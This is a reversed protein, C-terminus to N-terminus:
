ETNVLLDNANQFTVVDGQKNALNKAIELYKDAKVKNNQKAYLAGLHYNFVAVNPSLSVVRELILEAEDFKGLQVNVWAYTDLYYPETASKFRETLRLAKELNEDSRFHDTLLSALNNIVPEVNEDQELIKEYLDKAEAFKKNQEYLSALQMELSINNPLERLGEHFTAMARDVKNQSLYVSAMASYGELWKSDVELGKKIVAIAKDALNDRLYINSQIVYSTFQRPNNVTFDKLFSLLEKEQNLKMSCFALGNLSRSVEQKANLLKKYEAIADAYREQTQLIRASIFTAVHAHQNTKNLTDVISQTGSLDNKLLRVQALTQLIEPNKPTMKLANLLVTESRNLDNSNMLREAVSLAAITNGPNIKLARRFNDEALENADTNSYAQALLVLAQEEEPNNRLVSRLRTIASDVENNSIEIAAKMILAPENEPDEKLVSQLKLDAAKEDENQLDFSALMTNARNRDSSNETSAVIENLEVVADDIKNMSALLKVKNFRLDTNKPNKNIYSNLLAVAETPEKPEMLTILLLNAESDDPHDNVFSELVKKAKFYDGQQNYLKVLSKVIWFESPRKKRLGEYIKEMKKYDKHEEHIALLLVTLSLDDPKTKLTSSLLEEAEKPKNQSSLLSAKLSIAEINSPDLSLAREIDIIAADVNEQQLLAASKLIWAIANEPDKQIVKAAQELALTTDGSLLYMKGLKLIADFHEADLKEVTLLNAFMAKWNKDKEDLLALQYYSEAVKPDVQIANKFEVRAKEPSGELLLQKGSEIFDAASDASTGCATLSFLALAIVTQYRINKM